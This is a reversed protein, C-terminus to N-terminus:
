ARDAEKARQEEDVERATQQMQEVTLAGTAILRELIDAAGVSMKDDIERLYDRVTMEQRELHPVILAWLEHRDRVEYLSGHAEGLKRLKLYVRKPDKLDGLEWAEVLMVQFKSGAPITPRRRWDHRTRRDPHPSAVDCTLKYVGPTITNTM